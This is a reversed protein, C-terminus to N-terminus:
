NVAGYNEVAVVPSFLAIFNVYNISLNCTEKQKLPVGGALRIRTKQKRQSIGRRTVLAVGVHWNLRKERVITYVDLACSFKKPPLPLVQHYNEYVCVIVMPELSGM